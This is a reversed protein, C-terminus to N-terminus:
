RRIPYIVGMKETEFRPFRAKSVAQVVCAELQPEGEPDVLTSSVVRGTAGLITLKVRIMELSSVGHEEICRRAAPLVPRMGRKIDSSSLKHLRQTEDVHADTRQRSRERRRERVREGSADRQKKVRRHSRARRSLSQEEIAELLATLRPRADRVEERLSADDELRNLISELGRLATVLDADMTSPSSETAEQTEVFIARVKSQAEAIARVVEDTNQAASRGAGTEADAMPAGAVPVEVEVVEPPSLWWSLAVAAAVAWGAPGVWRSWRSSRTTAGSWTPSASPVPPVLVPGAPRHFALAELQRELREIEPDPQGTRDWLYEDHM